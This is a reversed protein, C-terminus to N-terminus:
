GGGGDGGHKGERGRGRGVGVGAGADWEEGGGVRGRGGFAVVRLGVEDKVVGKAAEVEEEGEEAEVM